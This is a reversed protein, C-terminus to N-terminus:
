VKPPQWISFSIESLSNQPYSSIQGSPIQVFFNNFSKSVITVGGCCNCMCLPSCLENTSHTDQCDNTQNFATQSKPENVCHDNDSCPLIALTSFYILFIFSFIKM